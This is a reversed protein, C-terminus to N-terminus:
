GDRNRAAQPEESERAHDPAQSGPVSLHPELHVLVDRIAPFKDLLRDKVRHGVSHGAAVTMQPDVEIHIDAFYELGSKRVLLKEIGQVEPVTQAEQRIQSVLKDDAQQDMIEAAGKLFLKTASWLIMGVVALAAAMDVWAFGIGGWKVVALGALVALSCLADNRHDWANAIIASSGSRRGARRKYWFLGEKVAANAAAIGLAWAPPTEDEAAGRGIAEWGVGIASLGIIVGVNLAAISEARMHGYPHKPNPPKQAFWLGSVVVVSTFVDGLSNVADAILAMSGAVAGASAKLVGLVMNVALGILAARTAQRYAEVNKPRSENVDAGRRPIETETSTTRLM